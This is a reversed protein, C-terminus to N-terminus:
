MDQLPIILADLMIAGNPRVLLPNVDIEAILDGLDSVLTSFRLLADVLAAKDVAARGRVGNLLPAGKLLMPLAEADARTLPPMSTVADRYVEVLVGGLGVLM